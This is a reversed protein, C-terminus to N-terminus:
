FRFVLVYMLAINCMLLLLATEIGISEAANM